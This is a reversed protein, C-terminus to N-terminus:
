MAIDIPIDAQHYLSAGIEDLLYLSVRPTQPDETIQLTITNPALKGQLKPEFQMAVERTAEDFGYSASIPTSIIREGSRLEARLRPPQAFLDEATGAITVSFFRTTIKPSGLKLEWHFATTGPGAERDSSSVTLVPVIVEQPSLGGHFYQTSGGPVKFCALGYPTVLELDGGIGFASLPKRLCGPIAAGGKGVWVRRHLDVVEGGPPDIPQGVMLDEGALYGHDATIVAKQFGLNFLARLGRRLQEFVHDQLQRAMHPHNEWLGDIEESATVVALQAEGLRASLAKNNLPAVQNLETVVVSASLSEELHKVRDQRIKLNDGAVVAGLKGSGAPVLSLGSEAGPLLAAMGVETITPPTGLVPQLEVGWDTSIQRSLELAMEYRFADVLFYVAKGTELHPEVFTTFVKVQPHVDSLTFDQSEWAQVFRRALEHTTEAYSHRASAALKMLSDHAQPDLDFNQYDRGLRRQLSDLTCWPDEGGAYNELLTNASPNGKLASRISAAKQLAQGAQAIIGWRLKVVPQQDAWFGTMRQRALSVLEPDTEEILRNEVLSQLLTETRAFTEVVHLSEVTWDIGELSLEAEIKHAVQVYSEALDRRLRWSRVINVAAQRAAEGEPLPITKLRSPTSGHLSDLFDTLLLHRELAARLASLNAKDAADIELTDVLLKAIASQAQRAEIKQDIEPDTLFRLIIEHPNGSDFIIKLAGIQDEQYGAAIKEVEALNLKGAEIEALLKEAAAPPIVGELAQHAVISLRTNLEPPHGGPEMKVGAVTYEVLAHDVEQSAMPVYILLRPRQPQSWLEELERRLALFGGQPDYRKLTTDPLELSKAVQTYIGQPDFWVVVQSHRLQKRIRQILTDAVLGM